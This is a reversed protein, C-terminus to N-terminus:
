AAATLLHSPDSQVTECHCCVPPACENMLFLFPYCVATVSLPLLSLFLSTGFIRCTASDLPVVLPIFRLGSDPIPRHESPFLSFHALQPPSPHPVCCLSLLLYEYTSNGKGRSLDIIHFLPSVAPVFLASFEARAALCAYSPPASISVRGLSCSSSGSMLGTPLM